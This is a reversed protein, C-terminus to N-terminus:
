ERPGKEPIKLNMEYGGYECKEAIDVVDYSNYFLRLRSIINILGVGNGNNDGEPKKYTGDLIKERIEPSMGEGNDSVSIIVKDAEKYISLYIVGKGEMNRIGHNVSNEILPQIIMKPVETYLLSEDIDKVLKIEGGFRVDLIAMYYDVLKLEDEINTVGNDKKLNYRFFKAVNGIYSSTKGAGELMALQMGANLTNFLFHPDTQSLFYKLEADKAKAEMKLERERIDRQEELNKKERAMYDKISVLMESFTRSLVGIEDKRDSVAIETDFNGESIAIANDALKEIPVTIHLSFYQLLLFTCGTILIIFIISSIELYHMSKKMVDYRDNNQQFQLVNISYIYDLIYEEMKSASEYSEKYKLVNRGRKSQVTKETLSIYEDIMSVLDHQMGLIMEDNDSLNMEHVLDKLKEIDKYYNEMAGTSKTLIYETLNDHVTKIEESLKSNYKNSAYAEDHDELERDIIAFVLLNVIIIIAITLAFAFSLQKNVSLQKTLKKFKSKFISKAM